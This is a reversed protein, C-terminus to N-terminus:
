VRRAARWGGFAIMSRPPPEWNGRCRMGNSAPACCMYFLQWCRGIMKPPGGERQIRPREPILPRVRKWVEDSLEWPRTRKM